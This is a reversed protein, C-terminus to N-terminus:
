RRLSALLAILEATAQPGESVFSEQNGEFRIHRILGQPGHPYLVYSEKGSNGNEPGDTKVIYAKKQGGAVWTEGKSNTFKQNQLVSLTATLDTVSPNEAIPILKTEIPHAM